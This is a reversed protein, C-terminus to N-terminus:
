IQINKFILLVFNFILLVYGFGIICALVCKLLIIGIKEREKEQICIKYIIKPINYIGIIIIEIGILLSMQKALNSKPDDGSFAWAMLIISIKTICFIIYPLSNKISGKKESNKNYEIFFAILWFLPLIIVLMKLINYITDFMESDNAIPAIHWGLISLTIMFELIMTIPFRKVDEKVIKFINFENLIEKM